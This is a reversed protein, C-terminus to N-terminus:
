DSHNNYSRGTALPRGTSGFLVGGWVGGTPRIAKAYEFCDIQVPCTVCVSQARRVSDEDYGFFVEPDVGKCSGAEKWPEAELLEALTM